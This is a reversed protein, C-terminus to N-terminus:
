VLAIGLNECPLASKFKQIQNTQVQPTLQQFLEPVFLWEVFIESSM